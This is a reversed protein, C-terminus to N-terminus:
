RDEKPNMSEPLPSSTPSGLSLRTEGFVSSYTIPRIASLVATRETLPCLRIVTM